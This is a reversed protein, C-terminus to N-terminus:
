RSEDGRLGNWGNEPKDHVPFASTDLGMMASTRAHDAVHAYRMTMAENSHGAIKAVVHLPVGNELMRTIATHRTDHFILGGSIDRGYPIKAIKCTSKFGVYFQGIPKSQNFLSPFVYESEHSALQAKLMAVLSPTLPIKRSKGTKTRLGARQEQVMIYGDPMMPSAGFIISTRRLGIIEGARMATRLAFWFIRAGQERTRRYWKNESRRKALYAQIIASEEEETIVRERASEPLGLKPKKPAHFDKLDKFLSSASNLAIHAITVEEKVTGERKGLSVIEVHGNNKVKRRNGNKLEYQAYKELDETELDTIPKDGVVDELTKLVREARLCYGPNRNNSKLSAVWKNRLDSLKIIHKKKKDFNFIGRRVDTKIADVASECESRTPFYDGRRTRRRVREGKENETYFDYVYVWEPKGHIIRKVKKIAM